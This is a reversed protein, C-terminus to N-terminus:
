GYLKAKAENHARWRSQAAKQKVPNKPDRTMQVGGLVRALALRTQRAEGVAPNMHVVGSKSVASMGESEIMAELEVIRDQLEEALKLLEVERGDPELQDAAMEARIRAVLAAGSSKNIQMSVIKYRQHMAAVFIVLVRRSEDHGGGTSDRGPTM